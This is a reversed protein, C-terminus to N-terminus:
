QEQRVVRHLGRQRVRRVEGWEEEAAVAGDDGRDRHADISQKLLKRPAVDLGRGADAKLFEAEEAAARDVNVRARQDVHARQPVLVRVIGAIVQGSGGLELALDDGKVQQVFPVDREHKVPSRRVLLAM